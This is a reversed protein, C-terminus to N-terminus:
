PMLREINITIAVAGHPVDVAAWGLVPTGDPLQTLRPATLGSLPTTPAAVLLWYSGPSLAVTAKGEPDSTAIALPPQDSAGAPVARVELGAAPGLISLGGPAGDPRAAGGLGVYQVQVAVSSVVQPDSEGYQALSLGLAVALVTTLVLASSM